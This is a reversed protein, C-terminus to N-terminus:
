CVRRYSIHSRVYKENNKVAGTVRVRGRFCRRGKIWAVRCTWNTRNIKGGFCDYYGLSRRRWSAVKHMLSRTAREAASRTITPPRTPRVLRFTWRGVEYGGVRWTVLHQGPINTTIANVYLTNSVAVEPLTCLERGTPYLVCVEYEVDGVTSEFFGGPRDGLLCRHSPAAEASRGCAAYTQFNASHAEPVSLLGFAFVAFVVGPAMAVHCRRFVSM